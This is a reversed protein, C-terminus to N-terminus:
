QKLVKFVKGDIRLLYIGSPMQRMDIFSLGKGSAVLHGSINLLDIQKNEANFITLRETVPNPAFLVKAPENDSVVRQNDVPVLEWHTKNGTYNRDEALYSDNEWVNRDNGVSTLWYYVKGNTSAAERIYWRTFAGTWTGYKMKLLYDTRSEDNNTWLRNGNAGVNEIYYQGETGTEIVEWAVFESIDGAEVMAVNSDIGGNGQTSSVTRLMRGSQRNVFHYVGPEIGSAPPPSGGGAFTPWATYDWSANAWDRLDNFNDESMVEGDQTLYLLTYIADIEVADNSDDCGGCSRRDFFVCDGGNTAGNAPIVNRNELHYDTRECVNVATRPWDNDGFGNLRNATAEWFENRLRFCLDADLADFTDTIGKGTGYLRWPSLERMNWGLFYQNTQNPLKGNNRQEANKLYNQFFRVPEYVGTQAGLRHIHQLNYAFDNPEVQGGRRHGPTLSLQVQYWISSMYISKTQKLPTDDTLFYSKGRNGSIIHAANQFVAWQRTPWQQHEEETNPINGFDQIQYLNFQHIVDFLKVGYWAALSRKKEEVALTTRDDAWWPSRPTVISYDSRIVKHIERAFNGVAEFVGNNNHAGSVGVKGNLNNIKTSSNVAERLNFFANEIFNYEENTLIEKPHEKPLWENWDPFQVAIRQTRINTNGEYNNIVSEIQSESPNEGGFLDQLLVKEDAGVAELGQGAAWEFKNDDAGPGPQFPPQWPRGKASQLYNLDRIYEAIQKGQEHDMGHFTARSIISENSYNFYKLDYGTYAHCDSCSAKIPSGKGDILAPAGNRGFWLDEGASRMNAQEAMGDYPGVWQSPDVPQAANAIQDEASLDNTQWLAMEIIRFGSEDTGDIYDYWFEIDHRANAVFGSIPTSMKVTGFGGGLGGYALDVPFQSFNPASNQWSTWPEATGNKYSRVRYKLADKNNLNNVRLYLWGASGQFNKTDVRVVTTERWATNAENRVRFVEIPYEINPQAVSLASNFAIFLFLLCRFTNRVKSLDFHKMIIPKM